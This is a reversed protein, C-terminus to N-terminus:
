AHGQMEAREKWALQWWPDNAADKWSGIDKEPPTNQRNMAEIFANFEDWGMITGDSRPSKWFDHAWGFHACM